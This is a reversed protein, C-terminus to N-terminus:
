EQDPNSYSVVLEDIPIELAAALAFLRSIHININETTWNHIQRVSCGVREALCERTIGKRDIAAKLKQASMLTIMLDM